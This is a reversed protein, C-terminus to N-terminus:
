NISMKANKLNKNQENQSMLFFIYIYINGYGLTFYIGIIVYVQSFGRPASHNLPVSICIQFDWWINPNM